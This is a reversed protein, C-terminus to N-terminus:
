PHNKQSIDSGFQQIPILPVLTLQRPATVRGIRVCHPEAFDHQLLRGDRRDHRIVPPEQRGPRRDLRQRCCLVARHHRGPRPQAIVAPRAIQQRRRTHHRAVPHRLVLRPPPRQRPDAAIGRRCHRRDRQPLARHHDVAIHLADDRPQERDLRGQGRLVLNVPQGVRDRRVCSCAIERLRHHIQPRRDAGRAIWFAQNTRDFRSAARQAHATRVFKRHPRCLCRPGLPVPGCPPDRAALIDRQHPPGGFAQEAPHQAQRHALRHCRAFQEPPHRMAEGM